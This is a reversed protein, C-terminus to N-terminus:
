VESTARAVRAKKYFYYNIGLFYLGLLTIIGLSWELSGSHQYFIASIFFVFSCLLVKFCLILDITISLIKRMKVFMVAFTVAGGIILGLPILTEHHKTDSLIIVLTTTVLAGSLYPVILSKTQYESQSVMSIINSMMRFFYVVAGFAILYYSSYFKSSGLIRMLFPSLAISYITTTIIIPLAMHSLQYWAKQRDHLNNSNIDHYYNPFLVQQILTEVAAGIKAAIYIGMSLRGLYDLSVAKEVIFRFSDYLIWMLGTSVSMPLCFAALQRLKEKGLSSFTGHFKFGYGEGLVKKLYWFSILSFVAQSVIQGLLWIEARAGFLNISLVSLLISFLQWLSSFVVFAVRFGFMNLAPVITFTLNLCYVGVTVVVVLWLTDVNGVIGITVKLIYTVFMSILSVAIIYYNYLFFNKIVTKNDHWSHLRRNVYQGMPNVWTLSFYNLIAIILLFSAVHETSLYISIVKIMVFTIAMQIFRGIGIVVIDREM